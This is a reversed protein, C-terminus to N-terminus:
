SPGSWYWGREDTYFVLDQGCGLEPEYVLLAGEYSAPIWFREAKLGLPIKEFFAFCLSTSAPEYDNFYDDEAHPVTVSCQFVPEGNWVASLAACDGVAIDAAVAGYVGTFYGVVKSERDSGQDGPAIEVGEPQTEGVTVTVTAPLASEDGGCATSAGLVVGALVFLSVVTMLTRALVEGRGLLRLPHIRFLLPVFQLFCM